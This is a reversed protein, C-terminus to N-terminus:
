AKLRFLVQTKLEQPPTQQPDNLYLEYSAGSAEYANDTMWQGLVNYTTGIANYPGVHLCSAYKGAPIESATIEGQGPLPKAVQFGIEVDLDQMDANHYAAFSAGVPHEGLRGLYQGIQGYAKGMLAPLAQVPTRTRITLAPQASRETLECHLTEPTPTLM